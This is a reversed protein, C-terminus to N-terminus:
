WSRGVYRRRSLSDITDMEILRGLFLSDREAKMVVLCSSANPSRTRVSVHLLGRSSSLNLSQTASIRANTFPPSYAMSTSPLTYPFMIRWKSISFSRSSIMAAAPTYSFSPFSSRQLFSTTKELWYYYRALSMNRPRLNDVDVNAFTTELISIALNDENVYTITPAVVYFKQNCVDSNENGAVFGPLTRFTASTDEPCKRVGSPTIPCFEYPDFRWVQISQYSSQAQFALPPTGTIQACYQNFATYMAMSPNTIWFAYRDTAVAPIHAWPSGDFSYPIAVRCRGNGCSNAAESCDSPTKCPPLAPIFKNVDIM